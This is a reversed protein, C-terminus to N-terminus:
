TNKMKISDLYLKEINNTILESELNVSEIENFWDWIM